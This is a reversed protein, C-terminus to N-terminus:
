EQGFGERNDQQWGFGQADRGRNVQQPPAMGPNWSPQPPYSGQFSLNMMPAPQQQQQQQYGLASGQESGSGEPRTMEFPAGSFFQQSSGDATPYPPFSFQQPLANMPIPPQMMNMPPPPYDPFRIGPKPSATEFGPPRSNDLHEAPYSQLQGSGSQPKSLSPSRQLLSPQQSRLPVRLTSDSASSHQKTSQVDSENADEKDAADTLLLTAHLDHVHAEFDPKKLFSRLCHPAACIFIGEMMKITQIKQIREDCLYCISDSRACELCFAHDCPNLRGYIAIPFDCRVCFHVREGLQRRSRRGVPNIVTTPTVSGIGKAVPLDALVLHDPCAVTVTETPSPRAGGGGGGTETPSDRRLRIQLM